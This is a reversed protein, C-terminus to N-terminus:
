TLEQFTDSCVNDVLIIFNKISITFIYISNKHSFGDYFVYINNKLQNIKNISLCNLIILQKNCKFVTKRNKNCVLTIGFRMKTDFYTNSMRFILIRNIYNISHTASIKATVGVEVFILLYM